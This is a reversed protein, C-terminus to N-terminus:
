CNNKMDLTPDSDIIKKCSKYDTWPLSVVGHATVQYRTCRFSVCSKLKNEHLVRYHCDHYKLFHRAVVKDPLADRYSSLLQAQLNANVPNGTICVQQHNLESKLKAISMTMVDPYSFPDDHTVTTTNLVGHNSPMGAHDCSLDSACM